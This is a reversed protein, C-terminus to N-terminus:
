TCSYSHSSSYLTLLCTTPVYTAVSSEWFERIEGRNAVLIKRLKMISSNARIRHISAGEKPPADDDFVEEFADAKKAEKFAEVKKDDGFIIDAMTFSNPREALQQSAFSTPPSSILNLLEHTAAPPLLHNM